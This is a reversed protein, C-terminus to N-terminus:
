ATVGIEVAYPLQSAWVVFDHWETLRHDKRQSVITKIQQYNTTAYASLCLGEPVNAKILEFNEQSPHEKYRDVYEKLIDIVRQDVNPNCMSAIDFATIRHMTSASDLTIFSYTQLQQFFYREATITFNVTIFRLLKDHGSGIPARGLEGGRRLLDDMPTDDNEVSFDGTRMPFGASVLAERIGYVKTDTIKM